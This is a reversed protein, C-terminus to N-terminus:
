KPSFDEEDEIAEIQPHNAEEEPHESHDDLPIDEVDVGEIGDSTETQVPEEDKLYSITEERVFPTFNSEFPFVPHALKSSHKTERVFVTLSSNKEDKGVKIAKVIAEFESGLAIAQSIEAGWYPDLKGLRRDDDSIVSIADKNANLKIADGVRLQILVRPMALDFVEITETKGPEEIFMDPNLPKTTQEKSKITSGRLTSLRDINKLAIPNYPDTELVKEFTAKAKNVQGLESYAKGLRNLIETDEPFEEVLQLNLTVAKEWAGELASQIAEQNRPDLDSQTSM